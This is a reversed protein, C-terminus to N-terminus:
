QKLELLPIKKWDITKLGIITEDQCWYKIDIGAAGDANNVTSQQSNVTSQQSNVTNNSKWARGSLASFPPQAEL